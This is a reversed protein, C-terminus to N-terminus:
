RPFSSFYLFPLLPPSLDQHITFSASIFPRTYLRLLHFIMEIELWFLRMFTDDCARMAAVKLRCAGFHCRPAAATPTAWGPMCCRTATLLVLRLTFISRCTSSITGFCGRRERMLHRTSCYKAARAVLRLIFTESLRPPSAADYIYARCNGRVEIAPFGAFVRGFYSGRRPRFSSPRAHCALGCYQFARFGLLRYDHLHCLCGDHKSASLSIM